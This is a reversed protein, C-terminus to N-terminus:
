IKAKMVRDTNKESLFHHLVRETVIVDVAIFLVKRKISGNKALKILTKKMKLRERKLMKKPNKRKLNLNRKLSM